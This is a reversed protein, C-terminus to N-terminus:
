YIITKITRKLLRAFTIDLFAREVFWLAAVLIMTAAGYRLVIKPYFAYRRMLYIIPFVLCIIVIQGVEVGLNFGFLSLALHEGLVGLRTLVSAFGFGHFLGFIFVVWGIKRKFIPFIIDLAAIAISLAIITEVLRNPLEFIGLAAVSLTVSHAITFLTVIKIVYIIAPRFETVPEWNNKPRIMVSPIILAILFLIHDIGKWIHKIGIRVVGLFGQFTSYGSFSLEQRHESPSFILSVQSENNFIGAKWMHEIVLLCLHSPDKDFLVNYDINIAEPTLADEIISFKLLIFQGIKLKRKDLGTFRIPLRREGDFIQVKEQYYTHIEDIRNNLNTLTIQDDPVNLGMAKNLDRLTIEFVGTISNDYVNLFIYSQGTRHAYLPSCYFVIALVATIILLISLARHSSPFEFSKM